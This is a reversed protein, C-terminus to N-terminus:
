KLLSMLDFWITGSAKSYTMKVVVKTFNSSAYFNLQQKVYNYSNPKCNIIKTQTLTAGNYLMLEVKCVGAAPITAGKTWFSFRLYNGAAGSFTMTQTITKTKGTQGVFKLAAAGEKKFDTAKGDTTSWVGGKTWFQPVKSAGVYTNFSGNKIREAQVWWSYVAPTPDSNGAEDVAYVRFTHQGISLNTWLYATGCDRYALNDINCFFTLNGTSSVNDTGTFAFTANVTTVYSIPKTVISTDPPTADSNEVDCTKLTNVIPDYGFAVTGCTVGDTFQGYAYEGTGADGYRVWKTGSFSCTGSEDACHMWNTVSPAATFALDDGYTTGGANTAAVRYHYTTGATLGTLAASVSTDSSGTVTGEDAPFSLGYTNDLGIEFTVTADDGNANVTGHLIVDTSTLGSPATTTASPATYSLAFSAEITHNATVNTFDYTTVAGVSAGDVLVDAVHYGLDPTITYAQSGGHNVSTAGLPSISGNAGASSTITHSQVLDSEYAGIDCVADGQPRSEGRQDLNNVPAAACVDGDGAGLAPSGAQLSMTQTPGGNSALANLPVAGTLNNSSGTPIGQIDAGGGTSNAVISNYIYFGGSQYMIGAGSPSSNGSFTSNYVYTNPAGYFSVGVHLAGGASTASNNYFTSNAIYQQTGLAAFGDSFTAGGYAASNNYFTSNNIRTITQTWSYIAGGVNTAVNNHFTSNNVTLNGFTRIAGGNTGSGNIFTLNNMTVNSGNGVSFMDSTNNGSVTYGPAASGDITVNKAIAIEGSTLTTTLGALGSDITITGGDCVDAVAQRLSDIGSDNTNFVTVNYVCDYIEVEDLYGAFYTDGGGVFDDLAYGLMVPTSTPLNAAIATDSDMLVGNVYTSFRNGSAYYVTTVKVWQNAYPTFSFSTNGGGNYVGINAQGNADILWHIGGDPSGVGYPNGMWIVWQRAASPVYKMWFSVTFTHNGSIENGTLNARGYRGMVGDFQLSNSGGGTPVDASYAPFGGSQFLTGTYGNVSSDNYNNNLSWKAVQPGAAIASTVGQAGFTLVLLTVLLILSFTRKM